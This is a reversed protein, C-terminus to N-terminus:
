LYREALGTFTSNPNFAQAAVLPPPVAALLVEVHLLWPRLPLLEAVFSCDGNDVDVKLLRLQRDSFFIQIAPLTSKRGIQGKSYM